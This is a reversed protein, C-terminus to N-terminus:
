TMEKFKRRVGNGLSQIDIATAMCRVCLRSVELGHKICPIYRGEPNNFFCWFLDVFRMWREGRDASIQFLMSKCADLLKMTDLMAERIINM